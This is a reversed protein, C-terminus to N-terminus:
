NSNLKPSKKETTKQTTAKLGTFGAKTNGSTGNQIQAKIKKIKKLREVALMRRVSIIMTQTPPQLAFNQKKGQVFEAMDM